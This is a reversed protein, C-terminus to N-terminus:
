LQINQILDSYGPVQNQFLTLTLDTAGLYSKTNNCSTNWYKQLTKGDQILEFTYLDGLACYGTGDKPASNNGLTFGAHLLANLFASYANQNNAFLQTDVANGQYGVVHQYTVNSSDVTILVQNHESDANIPGDITLRVQADTSAYDVLSKSAVSTNPKKGDSLLLIIILIILGIAVLLGIFYRM